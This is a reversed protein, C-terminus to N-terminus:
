KTGRPARPKKTPQPAPKQGLGGYSHGSKARAALLGGGVLGAGIAGAGLKEGTSFWDPNKDNKIDELEKLKDYYAENNRAIASRDMQDHFAQGWSKKQNYDVIENKVNENYHMDKAQKLADGSNSITTAKNSKAQDASQDDKNFDFDGGGLAHGAAVGAGLVGATAIKGANNRILDTLGEQLIISELIEKTNSKTNKFLTDVNEGLIKKNPNIFTDNFYNKKHTNSENQGMATNALGAKSLDSQKTIGSTETTSVKEVKKETNQNDKNQLNSIARESISKFNNKKLNDLFGM